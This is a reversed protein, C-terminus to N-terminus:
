GTDVQHEMADLFIEDSDDVEGGVSECASGRISAVLAKFKEWAGEPIDKRQELIETATYGDINRADVDINELRATSLVELVRHDAFAAAMHLITNKWRNKRRHDAGKQLRLDLCHHSRHHIAEFLPTDGDRDGSDINAGREILFEAVRANNEVTAVALSNSGWYDRADIDAGATLLPDIYTLEDRWGSTAHLATREWKNKHNVEAGKQLLLVVTSPNSCYAAYHLPAIGYIDRINPDAGYRLLIQVAKDDGRQTAWLLATSGYADRANITSTSMQLEDNLDRPALGLVM